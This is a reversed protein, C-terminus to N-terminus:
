SSVQSTWGRATDYMANIVSMVANAVMMQKQSEDTWQAMKTPDEPPKTFNFVPPPFMGM